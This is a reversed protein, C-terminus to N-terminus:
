KPWSLFVLPAVSLVSAEYFILQKDDGGADSNRGAGFFINKWQLFKSEFLASSDKGIGTIAQSVTLIFNM